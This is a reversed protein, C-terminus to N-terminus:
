NLTSKNPLMSGLKKMMKWNSLAQNFPGVNHCKKSLVMIVFYKQHPLPRFSSAHFILCESFWFSAFVFATFYKGPTGYGSDVAEKSCVDCLDLSHHLQEGKQILKRAQIQFYKGREVVVKTNFHAGNRHTYFNYTPVMLDSYSLKMVVAAVQEILADGGEVSCAGYFEHDLMDVPAGPPIWQESGQLVEVFLAKGGDSWAGPIQENLLQEKLYKVFPGFESEDAHFEELVNEVTECNLDDSVQTAVEEGEETSDIVFEWPIHALVEGKEIDELAFVGIKGSADLQVQQKPNFIAGEQSSLWEVIGYEAAHDTASVKNWFGSSAAFLCSLLIRRSM